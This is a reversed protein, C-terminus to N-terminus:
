NELTGVWKCRHMRGLACALVRCDGGYFMRSL